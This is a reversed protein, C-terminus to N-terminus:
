ETEVVCYRWPDALGTGKLKGWAVRKREKPWNQHWVSIGGDSTYGVFLACHGEYEWVKATSNWKFTAILTGPTVSSGDKQCSMVAPGSKWKGSGPAGTAGRVFAVCENLSYDPVQTGDSMGSMSYPRATGTRNAELAKKLETGGSSWLLYNQAGDTAYYDSNRLVSRVNNQVVWRRGAEADRPIVALVLLAFVTATTLKSLRQRMTM